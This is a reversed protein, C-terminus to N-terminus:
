ASWPYMWARTSDVSITGSRARLFTVSRTRTTSPGCNVVPVMVMM